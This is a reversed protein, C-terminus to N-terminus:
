KPLPLVILANEAFTAEGAKDNLKYQVKLQKAVGPAPDGGFAGNYTDGPLTILYPTVLLHTRSGDDLSIAGPGGSLRRKSPSTDRPSSGRM